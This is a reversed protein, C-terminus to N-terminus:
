FIRPMNQSRNETISSQAQPFYQTLFQSMETIVLDLGPKLNKNHLSRYLTDIWESWQAKPILQAIGRDAIIEIRREATLFYILIGNNKPTDWVNMKSFVSWARERSRAKRVLYNFPLRTEFAIAIEGTHKQESLEILTAIPEQQEKPLLLHTQYSFTTYHRLLRRCQSLLSLQLPEFNTKM